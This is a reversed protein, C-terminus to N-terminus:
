VRSLGYYDLVTMVEVFDVEALLQEEVRLGGLRDFAEAVDDVFDLLQFGVAAELREVGDAPLDGVAYGVNALKGAPM